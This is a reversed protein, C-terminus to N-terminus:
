RCSTKAWTEGGGACGWCTAADRMRMPKGVRLRWWKGEKQEQYGGGLGRTDHQAAHATPAHPPNIVSTDHRAAHATHTRSAVLTQPPLAVHTRLAPGLATLQRHLAGHAAERQDRRGVQGAGVVVEEGQGEEM